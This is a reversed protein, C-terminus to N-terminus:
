LFRHLADGWVACLREESWAANAPSTSPLVLTPCDPAKGECGAYIKGAQQGNLLVARLACRAFIDAVDNPVVARLSSDASGAIECAKAADWLAIGHALVFLRKEIISEPVPQGFVRALVTWFRNRPNGYYFGTKRSLVSPFSGLILVRSRADLVPAFPHEM